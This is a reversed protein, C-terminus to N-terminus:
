FDYLIGFGIGARYPKLSFPADLEENVRITQMFVPQVFVRVRASIRAENRYFVQYSFYSSESNTYGESNGNKFGHQYSLGAGMKHSLKKGYLNYLIGAQVGLNLMKYNVFGESLKPTVTYGKDGASEVNTQNDKQYFYKLTQNQHYFSLGSYYELRKSLNGQVGLDLSVGFREVSLISVDSLRQVIIDDSAAPIARQFSLSPTINVYFAPKRKPIRKEQKTGKQNQAISDVPMEVADMVTSDVAQVIQKMEAENLSDPLASPMNPSAEGTHHTLLQPHGHTSRQEPFTKSLDIHNNSNGTQQKGERLEFATDNEKDGLAEFHENAISSDLVKQQFQITAGSLAFVFVSAVTAFYDVWPLWRLTRRPRLAADINEWVLDDPQETYNELRKELEHFQDNDPFNKM